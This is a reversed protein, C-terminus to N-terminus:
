YSQSIPIIVTFTAGEGPAATCQLIGHHKEVVIQHSTSLGMGTGKGVPKTTFFPDFITSQIDLPIGCGNDAFTIAIQQPNLAQTTITIQPARDGTDTVWYQNVTAEELADIANAILNMFVQNLQGAYCEIQPLIGYNKVLQITPHYHDAKGIRITKDKFRSQLVTLTSDLSEHIDVVKIAAEDLRSFTRLSQVISRIRETGTSMSTILHHMDEKLFELDVEELKDQIEAGCNPHHKQYLDLLELLDQLYSQAHTINGHIFNVPNNIEHAIGAVMRGLSSMKESQILQAQASQLDRLTIELEQTRQNLTEEAQKQETIDRAIGTFHLFGGNADRVAGINSRHYRYTGNQHRVRYEVGCMNIEGSLIRQMFHNCRVFDDPHVLPVFSQHLVDAIAHGLLESWNPSVYTFIGEASLTYIIDTATEIITRFKAESAQLAAESIKRDSIDRVIQLVRDDEYAVLRAEYDRMEGKIETQYEIIQIDDTNLVKQVAAFITTAADKSLFEFISRNRYIDIPGEESWGLPPYFDTQIGQSDLCFMMDPLAALMARNQAESQQLSLETEKRQINFSIEAAAHELAQLVSSSLEHQAFLAVVGLLRGNGILPYGAFAVMGERKAWAPDGVWPDSQVCNTLHPLQTQAIKGIKFKGVPVQAHGGDIHTYLGSSARLELMNTEPNLLWVRAFAADLHQVIADTCQTLMPLLSASRTPASDIAAQFIRIRNREAQEAEAQKRDSIDTIVGCFIIDGNHNKLPISRGHWWRIEGDPRIVRGEYDWPQVTQLVNVVSAVHADIDEPHIRNTFNTLDQMILDASVGLIDEIRDSIYDMAWTEGRVSFQYIAGPITQTITRFRMESTALESTRLSIREELKENLTQLATQSQKLANKTQELEFREQECNALRKQLRKNEAQLAQLTKLSLKSLTM